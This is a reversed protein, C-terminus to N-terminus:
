RDRAQGADVPRLCAAGGARARPERDGGQRCPRRDAHRGKGEFFSGTYSAIFASRSRLQNILTFLGDIENSEYYTAECFRSTDVGDHAVKISNSVNGNTNSVYVKALANSITVFQVTSSTIFYQELRLRIRSSPFTHSEYICNFRFVQAALMSYPCRSFVITQKRRILHKATALWGIFIHLIKRLKRNLSLFRTLKLEIGDYDSKENFFMEKVFLKTSFGHITVAYGLLKMAKAMNYVQIGNAQTAPVESNTLYLVKLFYVELQHKTKKPLM